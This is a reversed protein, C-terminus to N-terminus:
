RRHRSPWLANTNSSPQGHDEAYTMPAESWWDRIAKKKEQKNNNTM